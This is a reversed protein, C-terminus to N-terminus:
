SNEESDTKKTFILRIRTGKGVKSTIEMKAHHIDLIKKCISLGLGVGNQHQRSKDAMYFSETVRSISEQPIGCGNDAVSIVVANEKQFARIQIIGDKKIAKQSNDILNLFVTKLLDPEGSVSIDDVHCVLRINKEAFLPQVEEALMDFFDPLFIDRMAFDTKELVTLELMKKSLLSLRKGQRFIYDAYIMKEEESLKKSRLMDAYGVISTLPTKLEHSFSSVFDKQREAASRLEDVSDRLKTSMQNFTLALEGIEDTSRVETQCGYSGSGIEKAAGSLAQIPRTIWRTLFMTLFATVLILVLVCVSYIQYQKDKQVFCSTIDHISEIYYTQSNISLRDAMTLFWRGETEDVSYSRHSDDIKHLLSTDDAAPATESQYLLEFDQNRIRLLSDQSLRISRIIRETQASDFATTQTYNTLASVTFSRCFSLNEAAANQVEKDLSYTFFAYILVHGSVCFIATTVVMISLFIKWFLKM